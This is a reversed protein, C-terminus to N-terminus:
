SRMARESKAKLLSNVERVLELLKDGDQETGAQECLMKWREKDENVMYAM